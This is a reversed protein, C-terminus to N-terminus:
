PLASSTAGTSSSAPAVGTAGSTQTATLNHLTALAAENTQLMALPSALPQPLVAGGQQSGPQPGPQVGQPMAQAVKPLPAHSANGLLNRMDSIQKQTDDMLKHDRALALTVDRAKDTAMNALIASSRMERMHTIVKLLVPTELDSLIRAAERPKMSEYIKALSKINEDDQTRYAQLLTAVGKQLIKLEDIKKDIREESATLLASKFHLEKERQNLTERRKSLTELVQV